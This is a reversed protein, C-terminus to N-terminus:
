ALKVQLWMQEMKKLSFNNHMLYLRSFTEDSFFLESSVPLKGKLEEYTNINSPNYGTAEASIIGIRESLMFNIFKHATHKRLSSNSVALSLLSLISGEEPIVFGFDGDDKVFEKAFAGEIVVISSINGGLYYHYNGSIYSEVYPKQAIFLNQLIPIIKDIDETNRQLYVASIFAAEVPEDLMAVTYDLKSVYNKPQFVVSWSADKEFKPFLKKNYAIGYVSWSFPLSFKNEIDFYHHMLRKDLFPINSIKSHQLPELLNSKILQEITYDNCIIIDYGKGNRIRMEAVLEGPSDYYKVNVKIDTEYEFLRCVNKDISDAFSYINLENKRDTIYSQLYFLLFFIFMYASLIIVRISKNM